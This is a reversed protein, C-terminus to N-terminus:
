DTREHKRKEQADEHILQGLWWGWVLYHLAVILFLGMVVAIVVGVYGMTLLSLGALACAGTLIGLIMPTNSSKSLPQQPPEPPPQM